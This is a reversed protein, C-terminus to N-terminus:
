QDRRPRLEEVTIRKVTYTTNVNFEPNAQNFAVGFYDFAVRMGALAPRNRPEFYFVYDTGDATPVISGTAQSPNVVFESINQFEAAEARLRFPAFNEQVDSAVRVTVRYLRGMKLYTGDVDPAGDLGAATMDFDINPSVWLGYTNSDRGQIVLGQDSTSFVPPTFLSELLADGGSNIFQDRVSPVALDYVVSRNQFYTEGVGPLRTAPNNDPLGSAPNLRRGGDVLGAANLRGAGFVFSRRNNGPIQVAAIRVIDLVELPTPEFGLQRQQEWALAAVGAVHPAAASTGDFPSQFTRTNVNDHGVLEPKLRGDMTRGRASYTRINNHNIPTPLAFQEPVAAGVAGISAALRSVQNAGYSSAPVRPDIPTSRIFRIQFPRAIVSSRKRSVQVLLEGAPVVFAIESADGTGNQVANSAAVPLLPGGGATFVKIDIDDSARGAPELWTLYLVASGASQMILHERVPATPNNPDFPRFEHINNGNNDTFVGFYSQEADNGSATIYLSGHRMIEDNIQSIPATGDLPTLAKVQGGVETAVFGIDDVVINSRAVRALWTKAQNFEDLSGFNAFFKEAFPAMDHVIEIMGGGESGQTTVGQLGRTIALAHTRTSNIDQGDLEAGSELYSLAFSRMGISSRTLGLPFFGGEIDDGFAPIATDPGVHVYGGIPVTLTEGQLVYPWDGLNNSDTPETPDFNAYIGDSIVGVRITNGTLGDGGGVAESLGLSAAAGAKLDGAGTYGDEIEPVADPDFRRELTDGTVDVVEENGASIDAGARFLRHQESALASNSVVMPAMELREIFALRELARLAEVSAVAQQRRLGSPPGILRLGEVQRLAGLLTPNVSSLQIIVQFEGREAVSRLGPLVSSRDLSSTGRAEVEELLAGLNPAIVSRPRVEGEAGIMTTALLLAGFAGSRARRGLRSIARHMSHSRTLSM